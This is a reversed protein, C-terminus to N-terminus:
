RCWYESDSPASVGHLLDEVCKPRLNRLNISALPGDCVKVGRQPVAVGRGIGTSGLEERKLIARLIGDLEGEAVKGAEALSNTMERIVGEKDDAGLKARIAETCVFDAFKM